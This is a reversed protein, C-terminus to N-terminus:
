GESRRRRLGVLGLAGLGTGLLLYTSPEPVVAADEIVFNASFSVPLTGGSNIQNFVDTPSQGAFQATFLGTFNRTTAGFDGGTVTGFVGFFATTGAPNGFLSIPGFTNGAPAETLTFTYGGITVFPSVPLGVVGGPSVTLDTITGTTGSSIEPTFVGDITEVATITGTPPGQTGAGTLFDIFLNAGGSGPADYLLASGVFNLHDSQAQASSAPAALAGFALTGVVAAQVAFSRSM